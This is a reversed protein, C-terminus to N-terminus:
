YDKTAFWWCSFSLMVVIFLVSFGITEYWNIDTRERFNNARRQEESLLEKSISSYTFWDLDNIRPLVFHSWYVANAAFQMVPDAFQPAEKKKSEEKKENKDNMGKVQRPMGGGVIETASNLSQNAQGLGILVAWLLITLFMAVLTSRTMVAICTSASYLIAFYFTIVLITSPLTYTWIGTSLGQSLWVGGIAIVSNFFVFTLGGFYKLLLLMVRRIPKSLFLDVTGKQLMNPIFFSTVVVGLLIIFAAGVYNILWYDIWFLSYKLPSRFFFLPVLGFFLQPEHEWEQGDVIKTGQSKVSLALIEDGEQMGKVTLKSREEQNLENVEPGFQTFWNDPDYKPHKLYWLQKAMIKRMMGLMKQGEEKNGKPVHLVAYFQYDSEWLPADEPTREYEQIEWRLPTKGSQGAQLSYSWNLLGMVGNVQEDVPLPKFRITGIIILLLATIGVTLYLVKSDMAEKLSDKLLAVYKM